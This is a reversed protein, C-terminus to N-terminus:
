KEDVIISPTLDVHLEDIEVDEIFTLSHTFFRFRALTFQKLLQGVSIQPKQITTLWQLCVIELSLSSM